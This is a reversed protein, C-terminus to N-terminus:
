ERRPLVLHSGLCYIIDLIDNGKYKSTYLVLPKPILLSQEERGGGLETARMEHGSLYM